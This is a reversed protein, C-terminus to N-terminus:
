KKSKRASKKRKDKEEEMKNVKNIRSSVEKATMWIDKGELISTLEQPSMFGKYLEHIINESWKREHIIHDYMEGGKGFTGGSYDHFMFVSHDSIEFSDGCLFIMTAASMCAGEVSCVIHARSDTMCRIWQITSFVDGGHSNIHIYIIDNSAANRMVDFVSIYQDADAITGTLYINYVFGIPIPDRVISNNLVLDKM